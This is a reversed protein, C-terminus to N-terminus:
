GGGERCVMAERGEGRRDKASHSLVHQRPARGCDEIHRVRSCLSTHLPGPEIAASKYYSVLHQSVGVIILSVIQYSPVTLLREHSMNLTCVVFLPPSRCLYCLSSSVVCSVLSFSPFSAVCTFSRHEISLRFIDIPSLVRRIFLVAATDDHANHSSPLPVLNTRTNHNLRAVLLHFLLVLFIVSVLSSSPSRPFSPPCVCLFCSLSHCSRPSCLIFM